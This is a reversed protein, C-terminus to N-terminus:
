NMQNMNFKKQERLSSEGLQVLKLLANVDMGVQQAAFRIQQATLGQVARLQTALERQAEAIRGQSTLIAVRDLRIQRGTIISLTQEKELRDTINLLEDGFSVISGFELGVKRAAAAAKILNKEGRGIFSAFEDASNTLDQLVVAPAVGEMRALNVVSQLTSLALDNSEGKVAKITALLKVTNEAGLGSNRAVRAVDVSFQVVEHNLQGFTDALAKYSEEIEQSDLLFRKAQFEALKISGAVKAAEIATLGFEKRVENIAKAFKLGLTIAAGLLAIIATFPNLAFVKLIAGVDKLKNGFEIAGSVQDEISELVQANINNVRIAAKATDKDVKIKKGSKTLIESGTLLIQKDLGLITSLIGPLEKRKKVMTELQDNLEKALDVEEQSPRGRLDKKEAM